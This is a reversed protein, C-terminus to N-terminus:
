SESFGFLESLLEVFTKQEPEPCAKGWDSLYRFFTKDDKTKHVNLFAAVAWREPKEEFLPLLKAALTTNKSRDTPNKSLAEWHLAYWEAVSLESPWPHKDIRERAYKRLNPAYDKWNPYPPKVKWSESMARLSFLSATECLTEEFWLNNRSGPKYGCILHGYEHAFQFAFQCWFTGGSDLNVLYEGRPGRKFLAIPGNRSRNVLIPERSLPLAYPSIQEAASLLVKQVDQKSAGQWDATLVRVEVTPASLKDNQSGPGSAGDVQSVALVLTLAAFSGFTLPRLFLTM